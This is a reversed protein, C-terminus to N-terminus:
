VGNRRRASRGSNLIMAQSELPRGGTRAKLRLYLFDVLPQVVHLARLILTLVPTLPLPQGFLQNIMSLEKYFQECEDLEGKIEDNPLVTEAYKTM